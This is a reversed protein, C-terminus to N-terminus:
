RKRGGGLYTMNLFLWALVWVIIQTIIFSGIITFGPLFIPLALFAILSAFIGAAFQRDFRM